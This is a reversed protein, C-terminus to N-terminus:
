KAIGKKQAYRALDVRNNVGIKKYINHVHIKVTGLSLCLKDAIVQNSMGQAVLRMVEIERETLITALRRAGAERLLMKEFAHGISKKELWQGGGAVKHLCQVLLQISMEKLIVGQVQLRLVDITQEDELRATLLIMKQLPNERRVERILELGPCDPLNIDLLLIDPTHSALAERTKTASPCIALLRIDPVISFLHKLGALYVPHGDAAVVSITM